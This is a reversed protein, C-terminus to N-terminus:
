RVSKAHELRGINSDMNEDIFRWFSKASPGFSPGAKIAGPKLTLRIFSGLPGPGVSVDGDSDEGEAAWAWGNETTKVARKDIKPLYTTLAKWTGGGRFKDATKLVLSELEVPRYDLNAGAILTQAILELPLDEMGALIPKIGAGSRPNLETPRFGDKTLVGDVTFIGRYDVMDRLANGVHKATSRMAERDALAPDWYTDTGGYFFENSDPIRLVVMEVPRFAAVYDPFVMGHISCPIGEMFSMVRLQDCHKQFYELARNIDKENRVWRVGTAGGGVGDRSDGSWVVGDGKDLRKMAETVADVDVSVVESAERTVGIKDWVKDIVTKDDLALWEPKRYALSRRGAVSPLEHLFTGVVIAQREHDYSDLAQKADYPLDSMLKQGARIAEVLDKTPATELALWHGDAETPIEGTGMGEAALMFTSEAGLERIQRARPILGAIVEGAVIVKKGAFVPKIADTWYEAGTLDKDHDPMFEM